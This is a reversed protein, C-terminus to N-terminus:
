VKDKKAKIKDKTVSKGKLKAIQNAKVAQKWNSIHRHGMKSQVYPKNTHKKHNEITLHSDGCEKACQWYHALFIKIMKRRARLDCHKLNQPPNAISEHNENRQQSAHKAQKEIKTQSANVIQNEYDTHSAIEIQNETTLHSAIKRHNENNSQSAVERQNETILHSVNYQQNEFNSHSDKFMKVQRSKEKDYIDRYFPTLQKIFSDSINWVMSRLRLNFSLRHGKKRKEAIGISKCIPCKGDASTIRLQYRSTNDEDDTKQESCNPCVINGYGCYSWLSSIYEMKECYGFEKLLNSSLVAGIGKIELLFKNYIEEKEIYENMLSKYLNEFKEANKQVERIKKIYLNEDQSIKGESVAKDWLKILQKDTYKKSYDKNEKKKEVKGKVTLQETQRRIIARMRNMEMIRVQQHDYYSGSIVRGLERLLSIKYEEQKQEEM